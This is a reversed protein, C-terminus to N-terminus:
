HSLNTREPVERDVGLIGVDVPKAAIGRKEHFRACADPDVFPMQAPCVGGPETQSLNM